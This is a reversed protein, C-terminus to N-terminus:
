HQCSSPFLQSLNKLIGLNHFFPFNPFVRFKCKSQQALLCGACSQLVLKLFQENVTM